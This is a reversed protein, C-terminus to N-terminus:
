YLNSEVDNQKRKHKPSHNIAAGINIWFSAACYRLFALILTCGHALITDRRRVHVRIIIVVKLMGTRCIWSKERHFFMTSLHTKMIGVYFLSWDINKYQATHEPQQFDVLSKTSSLYNTSSVILFTEPISTNYRTIKDSL